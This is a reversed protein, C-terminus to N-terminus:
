KDDMLKGAADKMAGKAKDAAGKIHEKDMVAEKLLQRGVHPRAIPERPRGSRCNARYESANLIRRERFGFYHYPHESGGYRGFGAAARPVFSPPALSIRRPM